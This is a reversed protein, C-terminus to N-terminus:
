CVGLLTATVGGSDADTLETLNGTGMLIHAQPLRHRLEAYRQLSATLGFHIPDLIPDLIPSISRNDASEAARLLSELDGHNAPILVPTADSDSAIDLTHETLSLLFAAGAKAARRLEEAAASDVSVALGAAKLERVADELHPFATDPLCGLDIVDAGAARMAIARAVIADVTLASADVIEAFIRMDQRSLDLSRGHKGFYAPLDKLEEPGREFRVGFDASLRDLDARCRGPVLIRDAQVPRPVRRSIIAETMLAAVKVGVDFISWDFGADEIRALVKELRPRALHGTLFLIREAM